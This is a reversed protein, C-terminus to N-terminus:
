ITKKTSNRELIRTCKVFSELFKYLYILVKKNIMAADNSIHLQLILKTQWFSRQEFSCTRITRITTITRFYLVHM